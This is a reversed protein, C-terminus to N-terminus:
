LLGRKLRTCWVTPNCRDVTMSTNVRDFQQNLQTLRRTSATSGTLFRQQIRVWLNV